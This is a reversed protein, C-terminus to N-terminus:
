HHRFFLNLVSFEYRSTAEDLILITSPRLMARALCFLQKQGHSLFINDISADLGGKSKIGDWLQVAKLADMIQTDPVVQHPDANMRVNGPLLYSDQPVGVIRSRIEQRPITSLDLGDIKITGGNMNIMRFISLVLSTKGSSINLITIHFFNDSRVKGDTWLSSGETWSCHIDLCREVCARGNQLGILAVRPFHHRSVQVRSLCAQIRNCRSQAM